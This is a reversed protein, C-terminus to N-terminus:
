KVIQLFHTAGELFRFSTPQLSARCGLREMGQVLQELHAYPKRDLGIIPYLRVQGGPKCVRVLETLARQHFGEDFQQHYLFLFHSGIVLSFQEDAFPLHPLVGAVFKQGQTDARYAQIFRELSDERNKQHNDLSGYYSWHLTSAIRALKETSERIELKGKEYIAQDGLEYLPDVAIASLGRATAEATFSSAGAGVDLIPGQAMIEETLSFMDVYEQYSRCTMAVGVQEYVGQNQEMSLEGRSM